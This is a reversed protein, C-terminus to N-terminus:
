EEGYTPKKVDPPLMNRYPMAELFNVIDWVQEPKLGTDHAPMQSGNIGASIRYFPDLPRRGGRYVGATLNAPRVITGWDDFKYDNARGFDNHCQMCKADGTTFLKFGRSISEELERRESTGPAGAPRGAY